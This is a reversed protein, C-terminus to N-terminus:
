GRCRSRRVRACASWSRVRRTAWGCVPREELLALASLVEDMLGEPVAGEALYARCADTTVIFGPPVPLGLYTMECLNAGKGGLLERDSARGEAFPVVWRAPVRHVAEADAATPTIPTTM